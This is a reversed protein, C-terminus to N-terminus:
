SPRSASRWTRTQRDLRGLRRYRRRNRRSGESRWQELDKRKVLGFYRIFWIRGERTYRYLNMRAQDTRDSGQDTYSSVKETVASEIAKTRTARSARSSGSSSPSSGRPGTCASGQRVDEAEPDPYVDMTRAHEYYPCPYEHSMEQLGAQRDAQVETKSKTKVFPGFIFGTGYVSIANVGTGLVQKAEGEELQYSLIAEMTDAFPKLKENSPKTDFPFSGNSFLADKLKARASRVKGRTSGVFIGKRAKQTKAMGTDATDDDRTIRMNDQYARLM